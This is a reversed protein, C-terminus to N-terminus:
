PTVMSVGIGFPGLGFGSLVVTKVIKYVVYMGTTMGAGITVADWNIRPLSTLQSQIDKEIQVDCVRLGQLQPQQTTPNIGKELTWSVNTLKTSTGNSNTVSSSITEKIAVNGNSYNAGALVSLDTTVDDLKVQRTHGSWIYGDASFSGTKRWGDEFDIKGSLYSVGGEGVGISLPGSSNKIKPGSIKYSFTFGGPLPVTFEVKEGSIELSKIIPDLETKVADLPAKKVNIDDKKLAKEGGANRYAIQTITILVKGFNKTAESGLIGCAVFLAAVGEDNKHEMYVQAFGIVQEPTLDKQQRFYKYLNVEDVHGDHYIKAKFAAVRAQFARDYSKNVAQIWSTDGYGKGLRYSAVSENARALNNAAEQAKAYTELSHTDYSLAKDLQRNLYDNMCWYVDEFDTQRYGINETTERLFTANSRLRELSERQEQALRNVQQIQNRFESTDCVDASSQPLAAIENKDKSCAEAMEELAAYHAKILLVRFTQVHERLAEFSKGQLTEDQLAQQVHSLQAQAQDLKQNLQRIEDQLAACSPSIHVRM